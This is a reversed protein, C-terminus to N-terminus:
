RWCERLAHEMSAGARLISVGCVGKTARCGQFIADTPTSVNLNEVPIHNLATWPLCILLLDVIPLYDTYPKGEIILLRSIRETAQAFEVGETLSNRLITMQGLLYPTQPLVIVGRGMAYQVVDSTWTTTSM